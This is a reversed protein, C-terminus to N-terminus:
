PDSFKVPVYLFIGVFFCVMSTCMTIFDPGARSNFQFFGSRSAKGPRDCEYSQLHLRGPQGPWTKGMFSISLFGRLHFLKELCVSPCTQVKPTALTKTGIGKRFQCSIICLFFKEM